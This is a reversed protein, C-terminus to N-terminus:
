DVRRWTHAMRVLGVGETAAHSVRFRAVRKIHLAPNISIAREMVVVNLHYLGPMLGISDYHLEVVILDGARASITLGHRNSRTGHLVHWERAVHVGVVAEDTDRMARLTLRLTLPEEVEIVPEPVDAYGILHASELTLPSAAEDGEVLQAAAHPHDRAVVREYAKFVEAPQGDEILEGRHLLVARDCLQEVFYRTHSVLVLTTGAQRFRHIQGLCRDYFSADGVALAEDILLVEPDVHSAIAFALRLRMGVSYFKVPVDAFDEVEAFGFIAALKLRLEQRRIGLLAGQLFVNERGTLEPHFGSGLHSLLSLRGSCNVEGKTPNMLGAILRLMTSKGSGNEGVLAIASGPEVRFSVDKIAWFEKKREPGVHRNAPWLSALTDRLSPRRLRYRKWANAVTIGTHM